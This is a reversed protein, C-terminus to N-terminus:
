NAACIRSDRLAIEEREGRERACRSILLELMADSQGSRCLRNHHVIDGRAKTTLAHAGLDGQKAKTPTGHLDGSANNNNHDDDEGHAEKKIRIRNKHASAVSV